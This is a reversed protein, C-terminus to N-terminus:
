KHSTSYGTSLVVLDEYERHMERVARDRERGIERRVMTIIDGLVKKNSEQARQRNAEEAQKIWGIMWPNQKKSEVAIYGQTIVQGSPIAQKNAAQESNVLAERPHKNFKGIVLRYFIFCFLGSVAIFIFVNTFVAMLTPGSINSIADSEM